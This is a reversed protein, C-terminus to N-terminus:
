NGTTKNTSPQGSREDNKVSMRSAEFRSHWVSVGTSSLLQKGLDDCLMEHSEITCKDLKM